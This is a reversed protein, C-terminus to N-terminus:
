RRPTALRRRSCPGTVSELGSQPAIAGCPQHASLRGPRQGSHHQRHIRCSSTRGAGPNGECYGWANGSALLLHAEAPARWLGDARGEARGEPGAGPRGESDAAQRREPLRGAVGKSLRRSPDELASRLGLRRPSGLSQALRAAASHLRLHCRDVPEMAFGAVDGVYDVPRGRLFISSEVPRDLILCTRPCSSLVAFDIVSCTAGSLM